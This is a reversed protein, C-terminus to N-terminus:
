ALKAVWKSGLSEASHGSAGASVAEDFQRAAADQLGPAIHSYTDLTVAITSHGLREQVIKPHIGQKLMLSAHNHRADHFRIRKVGCREALITRTRSVTNPRLPSGDVQCFLLADGDMPMGLSVQLAHYERLVGIASPPLAITRRSRASKPQLFVYTGDQLHHLGRSIHVQGLLFDVDGWRLALLESRRAGTYLSLYFLCYYPTAKAAELFTGMEYENWTQMDTRGGRPPDVADAVNRAVLGWKLATQLAVNLVVHHYKVTRPSLGDALKATYHRQLHEPRLQPLPIAGLAPILHREAISVYREHTRPTVSPKAYDALWRRLYDALTVRSPKVFTGSDLQHLLEALRREADRKTGKVTVWQRRRKGLSM